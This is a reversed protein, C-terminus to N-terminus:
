SGRVDKADGRSALRKRIWAAAEDTDEFVKAFGGRNVVVSEGFRESDVIPERGVFAIWIASRSRRQMEAIAKGFGFREMTTPSYGHLGTTDVLIARLGEAIAYDLAQQHVDELGKGMFPGECTVLLYDGKKEMKFDIAM